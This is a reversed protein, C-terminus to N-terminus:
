LRCSAEEEGHVKFGLIHLSLMGCESNVSIFQSTDVLQPACKALQELVSRMHEWQVRSTVDPRAKMWFAVYTVPIGNFQLHDHVDTTHIVCNKPAIQGVVHFEAAISIHESGCIVAPAELTKVCQYKPGVGPIPEFHLVPLNNVSLSLLPM